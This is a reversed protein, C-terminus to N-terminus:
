ECKPWNNDKAKKEIEALLEELCKLSEKHAEKEQDSIVSPKNWETKFDARADKMQDNVRSKLQDEAGEPTISKDCDFHITIANLKNRIDDAMNNWMDQLQKVHVNEHRQMCTDFCFEEPPLPTDDEKPPPPPNSSWLTSKAIQSNLKALVACYNDANVDGASNISTQCKEKCLGEYYFVTIDASGPKWLCDKFCTTTTIWPDMEAPGVCGLIRPGCPCPGAKVFKIIVDMPEKCNNTPAWCKGDVCCGCGQGADCTTTSPANTVVGKGDCVKCTYDNTDGACKIPETGAPLPDWGGKGSNKYVDWVECPRCNTNYDRTDGQATPRVAPAGDPTWVTTWTQAALDPAAGAFLLLPLWLYLRNRSPPM